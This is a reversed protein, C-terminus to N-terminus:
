KELVLRFGADHYRPGPALWKRDAARIVRPGDLWSGGRLVRAPPDASSISPGTPNDKPSSSYYEKGYWDACWERVNGLMDYLGFKNAPYSGVPAPAGIIGGHQQVYDICTNENADNGYMAKDCSIDDGWYRATDTGARAAYEWEAETPLRFVLGTKENLKSIFHHIEKWTILVVPHKGSGQSKSPRKGIVKEWQALTVEHKAMWFADVCVSHAPIENRYRERKYQDPSGMQFCGAPLRVFQMGTFPENLVDGPKPPATQRVPKRPSSTATGRSKKVMTPQKEPINDKFLARQSAQLIEEGPDPSTERHSLAEAKADRRDPQKHTEKEKFDVSLTKPTIKSPQPVETTATTHTTIKETESYRRSSKTTITKDSKQDSDYRDINWPYPNEISVFRRIYDIHVAQTAGPSDTIIMGILGNKILLPAGSTGPQVSNIDVQVFGRLDPETRVLIGARQDPPIYWNRARGIFWAEEDQQWRHCWKRDKWRVRESGNIKNKDIRLLALDLTRYVTNLLEATYGRSGPDWSFHLLVKKTPNDPLNSRVVHNATVIYFQGDREGVIFGFGNEEGYSFQATIRVVLTKYPTCVERGVSGAALSSAVLLFSCVLVIFFINILSILRLM